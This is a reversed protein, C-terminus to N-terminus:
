VMVKYGGEYSKLALSKLIEQADDVRIEGQKLV